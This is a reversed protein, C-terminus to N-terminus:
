ADVVTLGTGFYTAGRSQNCLAAYEGAALNAEWRMTEGSAAPPQGGMDHAWSPPSGQAEGPGILDGLDQGTKGEDLRVVIVNAYGGSTNTLEVAVEGAAVESPGDFVCSSGDFTLHPVDDGPAVDTEVSEGDGDDGCAGLVLVALAAALWPTRKM